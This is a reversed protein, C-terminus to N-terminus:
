IPGGVTSTACGPVEVLQLYGGCAGTGAPGSVSGAGNGTGIVNVLRVQGRVGLVTGQCVGGPITTSGRSAGFVIGQQRGPNANQWSVTVQGPCSGTVTCRYSTGGVGYGHDNIVPGWPHALDDFVVRSIGANWEYGVFVTESGGSNLTFQVTEVISNNADYVTMTGSYAFGSFAHADVGMATVVPDYRIELTEANALFTKTPLNYYTNGNWQLTGASYTAGDEVLGPGQGNAISQDDLVTVDLNTASGDAISFSEFDELVLNGGLISNLTARDPIQGDGLAGAACGGIVIVASLGRIWNGSM